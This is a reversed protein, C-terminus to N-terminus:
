WKRVVGIYVNISITLHLYHWCSRSRNLVGTVLHPISRSIVPTLFGVKKEQSSLTILGLRSTSFIFLVSIYLSGYPKQREGNMMSSCIVLMPPSTFSLDEMVEFYNFELGQLIKLNSLLISWSHKQPTRLIM